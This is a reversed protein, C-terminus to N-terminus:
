HGALFEVFDNQWMEISAITQRSPEHAVIVVRLVNHLFCRQARKTVESRKGPPVSPRPKEGNNTICAATEITVSEVFRHVQEVLLMVAM